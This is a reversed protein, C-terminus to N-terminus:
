GVYLPKSQKLIQHLFSLKDEKLSNFENLSYIKFDKPFVLDEEITKMSLLAMLSRREKKDIDDKIVVLLDVDSNENAKGTVHSGFLFLKVANTEKSVVNALKQIQKETVM